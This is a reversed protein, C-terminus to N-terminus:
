HVEQSVCEVDICLNKFMDEVDQNDFSYVTNCFDCTVNIAGEDAIISLAEEKGLSRLMNSVRERSCTCSFEVEEPEYLIVDDEDFLRNLIVSIEDKMLETHKLTKALFLVRDIEDEMLKATDPLQRLMFGVVKESSYAIVFVTRLQESQLMYETLIEEINQGNLSVVSQYLKGDSNSDISIVLTGVEICNNYSIQNDEHVTESFKSTARVTLENTCESVLLDIKPNDQIQAIIKGDLKINTTLLVNAALLEGLLQKIGDPYEKQAAIVNWADTLEVFAGHIPLNEFIFKRVFSKAM